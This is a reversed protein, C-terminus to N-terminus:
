ALGKKDDVPMEPFLADCSKKDGVVEMEWYVGYEEVLYWINCPTKKSKNWGEFNVSGTNYDSWVGRIEGTWGTRNSESYVTVEQGLYSTLFLLTMYSSGTQYEHKKRLEDRTKFLCLLMDRVENMSTSVEKKCEATEESEVKLMRWRQMCTHKSPYKESLRYLYKKDNNLPKLNELPTFIRYRDIFSKRDSLGYSPIFVENDDWLDINRSSGRTRELPPPLSLRHFDWECLQPGPPQPTKPEFSQTQYGDSLQMTTEKETVLETADTGQLEMTSDNKIVPATQQTEDCMPATQQSEECM